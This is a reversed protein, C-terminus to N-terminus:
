EDEDRLTTVSYNASSYLPRLVMEADGIGVAAPPYGKRSNGRISVQGVIKPDLVEIASAFDHFYITRGDLHVGFRSFETDLFCSIRHDVHYTPFINEKFTPTDGLGQNFKFEGNYLLYATSLDPDSLDNNQSLDYKFYLELVKTNSSNYVYIFFEITVDDNAAPTYPLIFDASITCGEFESVVSELTDSTYFAESPDHAFVVSSEVYTNSNGPDDDLVKATSVFYRQEDGYSKTAFVEWANAYLDTIWDSGSAGTFYKVPYDAETDPTDAFFLLNKVWWFEYLTVGNGGDSSSGSPYWSEENLLSDYEYESPFFSLVTSSDTPTILRNPQEPSLGMLDSTYGGGATVRTVTVSSSGTGANQAAQNEPTSYGGRSFAGGAGQQEVFPRSLSTANTYTPSSFPSVSLGSPSITSSALTQPVFPRDAERADAAKQRTKDLLNPNFWLNLDM